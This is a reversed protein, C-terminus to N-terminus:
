LCAWAILSYRATSHELLLTTPGNHGGHDCIIWILQNPTIGFLIVPLHLSIKFRVEGSPALTLQPISLSSHERFYAVTSWAVLNTM